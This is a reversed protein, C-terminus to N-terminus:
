HPVTADHHVVQVPIGVMFAMNSYVEYSGPGSPLLRNVNVGVEVGDPDDATREGYGHSLAVVGPRLADDLGVVTDVSGWASSVTIAEGEVLGLTAADVPHLYLPNRAHVGERLRPVLRRGWTNHQRRNRWQILKLQDPPEAELEVFLTRARDLLPGFSPPCCDIRGDTYAIVSELPLSQYPPLVKTNSPLSRLEDLTTGAQAAMTDFVM